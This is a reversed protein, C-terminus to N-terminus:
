LDTSEVWNLMVELKSKIMQAVRKLRKRITIMWDQSTTMIPILMYLIMMEEKNLLILINIRLNMTKINGIQIELGVRRSNNWKELSTWPGDTSRSSVNKSSMMQFSLLILFFSYWIQNNVDEKKIMKMWKELNIPIILTDMKSWNRERMLTHVLTLSLKWTYNIQYSLIGHVVKFLKKLFKSITLDKLLIQIM